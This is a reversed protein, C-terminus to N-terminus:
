VEFKFDENRQKLLWPILEPEKYARTWSDHGVGEYVTFRVNGNNERLVDVLEQSSSLPVVDDSDGHFAWVPVHKIKKIREPFGLMPMAGGCIPAIAAFANPRREAWHWTGFGGMSLGTLYIRETDIPYTRLLESLFGDLADLQRDWFSEVPCQPAALIFPFKEGQEAMMTLGHKKVLNLDTGREGAGHLFIVLPWKKGTQEGVQSPTYVLYNLRLTKEITKVMTHSQQLM